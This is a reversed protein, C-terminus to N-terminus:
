IAVLRSLNFINFRQCDRHEATRESRSELKEKVKRGCSINEVIENYKKNNKKVVTRNKKRKTKCAKYIKWEVSCSVIFIVLFEM